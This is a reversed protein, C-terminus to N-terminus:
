AHDSSHESIVDAKLCSAVYPAHQRWRRRTVMCRIVMAITIVDDVRKLTRAFTIAQSVPLRSKRPVHNRKEVSALRRWSLRRLHVIKDLVYPIAVCEFLGHGLIM